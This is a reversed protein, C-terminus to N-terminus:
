QRGYHIIIIIALHYEPVRHAQFKRANTKCTLFFESFDKVMFGTGVSSRVRAQQTVPACEVATSPMKTIDTIGHYITMVIFESLGIVSSLLVFKVRCM